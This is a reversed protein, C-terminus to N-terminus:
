KKNTTSLVRFVTALNERTGSVMLEHVSRLEFEPHQVRIWGRMAEADNDFLQVLRISIGCILQYREAVEQFPLRHVEARLDDIHDLVPRTCGIIKGQEAITFGMGTLLHVALDFVEDPTPPNAM